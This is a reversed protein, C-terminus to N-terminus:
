NAATKIVSFIKGTMGSKLTRNSNPVSVHVEVTESTSDMIGSVYAVKGRVPKDSGAVAVSVNAGVKFKEIVAVPVLAKGMLRRDDVMKLLPTGARVWENEHVLVRAIMGGYPASVTCARLDRLAIDLDAEAMALSAQSEVFDMKSKTKDKYLGEIMEFKAKRMEVMAKTKNVALRYLNADLVVLVTGKNFRQGLKRKIGTIKATVEASIIAEKYPSLVVTYGPNVPSQEANETVGTEQSFAPSVFLSLVLIITLLIRKM